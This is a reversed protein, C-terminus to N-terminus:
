DVPELEVSAVKFLLSGKQRPRLSLTYRGAQEFAVLGIEHKVWAVPSTRISALDISSTYFDGSGDETKLVRFSLDQGAVSILGEQAASRSDASYTLTVRYDGPELVRLNWAAADGPDDIGDVWDFYEFNGFYHFYRDTAHKASGALNAVAPSLTTKDFDNSVISTTPWDDVPLPDSYDVRVVTNREDPLLEPLRVFLDSGDHDVELEVGGDVTVARDAKATWNPVILRGSRPREFIHLYLSGPRHTIAGWPVEGVPSERTGYIAEGNVQLWEGVKRFRQVSPEPLRGLGDPGINLMLNGGKSAVTSLLQLLETTSKFNRDFVSYGWSDNHTFIAEWPKGNIPVTPVQGDGFTIFDGLGHGVRSSVMANPQLKEVWRVFSRADEASSDGPTDFWVIGVDGYQTLLEEIQPLAKSNLYVSFDKDAPDFEWDNGAADPDSWDQYQSYYFGLKIDHKAAADALEKLPDRDFPTADIIDFDSVASDYIAFGDHHKATIVIYKMGAAEAVAVWEEADFKTPNFREALASYEDTTLRARRMLWETIGYYRDSGWVGGAEAYLGWHIFMGFRADEYWETKGGDRMAGEGVESAGTASCTGLIFAAACVLRSVPSRGWHRSWMRTM